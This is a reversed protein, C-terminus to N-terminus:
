ENIGLLFEDQLWYVLVNLYIYSVQIKKSSLGIVIGELLPSM